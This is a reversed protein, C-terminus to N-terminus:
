ALPDCRYMSSNDFPCQTAQLTLLRTLPHVFGIYHLRKLACKFLQLYGAPERTMCSIEPSLPIVQMRTKSYFTNRHYTVLKLMVM